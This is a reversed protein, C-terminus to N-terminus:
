STRSSSTSFVTPARSFRRAAVPVARELATREHQLRGGIVNQFVGDMARITEEAHDYAQAAKDLIDQRDFNEM